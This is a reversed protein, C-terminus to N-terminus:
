KLKKKKDELRKLSTQCKQIRFELKPLELKMNFLQSKIESLQNQQDQYDREDKVSLQTELKKEYIKKAETFQLEVLPLKDNLTNMAMEMAEKKSKADDLISNIKEKTVKADHNKELKEFTELM